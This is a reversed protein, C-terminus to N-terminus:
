KLFVLTDYKKRSFSMNALICSSSYKQFIFTSPLGPIKTYILNDLKALFHDRERTEHDIGADLTAWFGGGLFLWM